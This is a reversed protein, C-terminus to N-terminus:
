RKSSRKRSRPLSQTATVACDCWEQPLGQLWRSHAPNLQGGSEMGASSGILMEGTATLRAPQDTCVMSVRQPLPIGTDSPRITGNGRSCDQSTPTPWGGLQAQRPLQDVRNRMTGDPNTATTAMGASDKHDRASPTAWGALSVAGPLRDAGQAPGGNPGDQQCPTPWGTCGRGSTRPVSARLRPLVRGSPTVVEDWTLNYLTSGLSETKKKLNAALKRSLITSPNSQMKISNIVADFLKKEGWTGLAANLGFLIVRTNEKTYGGKPDIKDLSPTSFGRVETLDFPEGSLHCVGAELRELVWEVDLDFPLDREVARRKAAAVLKSARSHISDRRSRESKRADLNRCEKCISRTTGKWGTKAFISSNGRKGCRSCEMEASDGPLLGAQSKNELSLLRDARTSSDSCKLGFTAAITSALGKEPALSHSAHAAEPGFQDVTRGDQKGCPTAGCASGPSSTSRPSDWLSMQDFM